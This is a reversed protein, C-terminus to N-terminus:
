SQLVCWEQGSEGERTLPRREWDTLRTSKDMELGFFHRVVSGLGPTRPRGAPGFVCRSAAPSGRVALLMRYIDCFNRVGPALGDIIGPFTAHLIRLDNQFDFGVKVAETCLLSHFFAQWQHHTVAGPHNLRVVDVLWVCEPSAM